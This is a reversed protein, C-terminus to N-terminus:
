PTPQTAYAAALATFAAKPRWPEDPVIKVVGYSAMDLDHAPDSADHPLDFGAFTFWFASDVGEAEFIELLEELYRVQEQEDRVFEGKLRPPNADRDVIAWGMAGRDAAGKYACCGFETVAVPKGHTFRRRLGERYGKANDADRYADVAVIDFPTWDVDEWPGAAYTVPGHFEARVASSAKALFESTRAPVDAMQAYVQPDGSALASIRGYVDDGPIFGKAFLSVECGAVFVVESGDARIQEADKACRTFLTLMEDATLECPFPAYWIELGADAAAKAAIALRDPDGGTIRVATCNLDNAIVRMEQQVAERTFDTRSSEGGPFFGTDYNIGKARM